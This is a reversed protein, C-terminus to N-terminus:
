YHKNIFVVLVDQGLTIIIPSNSLNSGKNHNQNANPARYKYRQALDLGNKLPYKEYPLTECAQAGNKWDQTLNFM